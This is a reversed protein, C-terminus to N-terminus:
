PLVICTKYTEHLYYVPLRLFRGLEYLVAVEAKYGGTVNFQIDLGPDQRQLKNVQELVHQRLDALGKEALKQAYAQDPAGSAPLNLADLAILGVDQIGQKGLYKKLLGSVLKCEATNTYVLRVGYEARTRSKLVGTRTLFANMEASAREPAQELFALLQPHKKLSDKRPLGTAREFNTLLSIGVTMIHIQKM